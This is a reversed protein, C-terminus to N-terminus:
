ANVLMHMLKNYLYRTAIADGLATHRDKEPVRIEFYDLLATLGDPMPKRASSFAAHALTYTDISRHHVMAPLGGNNIQKLFSVDFGVNHGVLVCKGISSLWGDIVGSAKEYSVARERWKWMQPEFMDRAVSQWAISEPVVDISLPNVALSIPVFAVQLISNSRPCLGSTETDIAILNYESM